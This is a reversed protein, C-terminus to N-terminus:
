SQGNEQKSDLVLTVPGDNVLGVNMMAGFIGDKVKDKSYGLRVREVFAEYFERAENPKMARSFDLKNGNLRGYLTFQSVMLLEHEMQQVNLDWGKNKEPNPWLRSNLIKRSIYEADKAEDKACVGILCVLGAGISSVVKGDVEVSASSVRQLVCRM